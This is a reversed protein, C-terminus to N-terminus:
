WHVRRGSQLPGAVAIRNRSVVTTRPSEAAKSVVTTPAIKVGAVPSWSETVAAAVNRNGIKITATPSLSVNSADNSACRRLLCSVGSFREAKSSVPSSAFAAFQRNARPIAPPITTGAIQIQVLRWPADPGGM